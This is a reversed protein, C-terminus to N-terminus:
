QKAICPNNAISKAINAARKTERRIRKDLAEAKRESDFRPPPESLAPRAIALGRTIRVWSSALIAAISALIRILLNM